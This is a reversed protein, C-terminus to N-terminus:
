RPRRDTHGWKQVEHVPTDWGRAELQEKYQDLDAKRHESSQPLARVRGARIGVWQEKFLSEMDRHIKTYATALTDYQSDFTCRRQALISGTDIGTGLTHITVGYPTGDHIAWFVPHAGRNWPLYSTHLNIGPLDTTILYRYDYSIIYEADRQLAASWPEESQRVQDEGSAEIFEILQTHPGLLLIRM